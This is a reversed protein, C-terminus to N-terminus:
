YNFYVKNKPFPSITPEADVICNLLLIILVLPFYIMYSVFSYKVEESKTKQVIESRYQPISFILLIFWFLFLLGSTRLGYKKNLLYIIM